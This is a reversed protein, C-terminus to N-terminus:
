EERRSQEHDCRADGAEVKRMAVDELSIPIMSRRKMPHTLPGLLTSVEPIVFVLPSDSQKPTNTEKQVHKNFFHCYTTSHFVEESFIEQAM